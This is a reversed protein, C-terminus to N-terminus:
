DNDPDPEMMMSRAEDRNELSLHVVLQEGEDDERIVILEREALIELLKGLRDEGLYASQSGDDSTYYGPQTTPLSHFDAWEGGLLAYLERKPIGSGHADIMQLIEAAFRREEEEPSWPKPKCFASKLYALQDKGAVQYHNDVKKLVGVKVLGELELTARERDKGARAIDVTFVSMGCCKVIWRIMQQLNGDMFFESGAEDPSATM